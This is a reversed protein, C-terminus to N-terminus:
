AASPSGSPRPFTPLKSQCAKLASAVKPSAPNLGNLFRDARPAGSAPPSTPPPSPRTTPIAEGHAAMCTRFAQFATGFRGGGFGFGGAPRLSACAQRAKLMAASPSGFGGAPRATPPAPPRTAPVNAGHQRLCTLYATISSRAPSSSSPATAAASKAQGCGAILLLAACGAAVPILAHRPRSLCSRSAAPRRTIARLM